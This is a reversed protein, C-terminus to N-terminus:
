PCVTGPPRHRSKKEMSARRVGTQAEHFPRLMREMAWVSFGMVVFWLIIVFLQYPDVARFVLIAIGINPVIFVAYGLWWRWAPLTAGMLVQTRLVQMRLVETLPRIHPPDIPDRQGTKFRERYIMGGVAVISAAAFFLEPLRGPDSINTAIGALILLAVFAARAKTNM